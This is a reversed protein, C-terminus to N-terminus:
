LGCARERVSRRERERHRLPHELALRGHGELGGELRLRLRLRDAHFRGLEALAVAGEDLLPLGVELRGGERLFWLSAVLTKSEPSGHPSIAGRVDPIDRM